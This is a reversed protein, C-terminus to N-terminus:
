SYKQFLERLVSNQEREASVHELLQPLWAERKAAEVVDFVFHSLNAAGSITEANKGFKFSLLMELDKKTFLDCITKHLSELDRESFTVTNSDLTLSRHKAMSRKERLIAELRREFQRSDFDTKWFFECLNHAQSISWLERPNVAGRIFIIVPDYEFGSVTQLVETAVNEQGLKNDLCVIDIHKVKGLVQLADQRTATERLDVELNLKNAVKFICKGLADRWPSEDEIILVTASAM